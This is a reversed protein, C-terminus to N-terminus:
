ANLCYQVLFVLKMLSVNEMNWFILGEEVEFRWRVKLVWDPPIKVRLRDTEAESDWKEVGESKSDARSVQSFVDYRTWM